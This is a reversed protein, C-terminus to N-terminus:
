QRIWKRTEIIGAVNMRCLYIGPPVHDAQWFLEHDGAHYTQDALIALQKGHIDLIRISVQSTKELSLIFSTHATFPNPRNPSSSFHVAETETLGSIIQHNKLLYHHSGNSYEETLKFVTRDSYPENANFIHIDLSIPDYITAYLADYYASSVNEAIRQFDDVTMELSDLM